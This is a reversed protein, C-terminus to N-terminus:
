LEKGSLTKMPTIGGDMCALGQEKPIKGGLQIFREQIASTAAKAVFEKTLEDGIELVNSGVHLLDQIFEFSMRVSYKKIISKEDLPDSMFQALVFFHKIDPTIQNINDDNIVVFLNNSLQTKHM